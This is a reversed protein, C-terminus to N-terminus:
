VCRYPANGQPEDGRQSAALQLKVRPGSIHFLLLPSKVAFAAARLCAPLKAGSLDSRAFLFLAPFYSSFPSHGVNYCSILYVYLLESLM